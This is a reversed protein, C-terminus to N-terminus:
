ITAWRRRVIDTKIGTNGGLGATASVLLPAQIREPPTPIVPNRLGHPRTWRRSHTRRTTTFHHTKSGLWEPLFRGRARGKTLDEM